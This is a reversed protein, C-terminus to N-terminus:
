CPMAEPVAIPEESLRLLIIERIDALVSRDELSRVVDDYVSAPINSTSVPLQRNELLMKVERESWGHGRAITWLRTRQSESIVRDASKASESPPVLATAQQKGQLGELVVRLETNSLMAYNSTAGHSVKEAIKSKTAPASWADGYLQEGVVNIEEMLKVAEAIDRSGDAIAPMPATAAQTPATDAQGMEDATYLGSLDNPFAARLAAAEACKALQSDPMRRWFDTPKGEKDTQAYSSWRVVRYLPQLFDKRLVGVRAAAPPQSSLWVDLWVGDDGCWQPHTQGAYQGSREAIVRFGDIGTQITMVERRDKGSWRKVAYIQRQFPDLGTRQAVALFLSLEDDTIGKAITSKLLDMQESGMVSLATAKIEISTSM